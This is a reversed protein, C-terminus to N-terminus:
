VSNHPTRLLQCCNSLQFIAKIFFAASGWPVWKLLTLVFFSLQLRDGCLLFNLSNLFYFNAYVYKLCFILIENSFVAGKDLSSNLHNKHLFFLDKHYLNLLSEQLKVCAVFSLLM